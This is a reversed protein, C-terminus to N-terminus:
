VTAKKAAKKRRRYKRKTKQKLAPGQVLVYQQEALDKIVAFLGKNRMGSTSYGQAGDALIRGNRAHISWREKGKVDTYLKIQLM